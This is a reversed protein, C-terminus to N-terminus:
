GDNRRYLPKLLADKASRLAASLRLAVAGAAVLARWIRSERLDSVSRELSTVRKELDPSGCLRSVTESWLLLSPADMTRRPPSGSDPRALGALYESWAPFCCARSLRWVSQSARDQFRQLTEPNDLLFEIKAAFNEPRNVEGVLFGNEGDRIYEAVGGSDAAIAACGCALAELPLLGFGEHLSGDVLMDTRKLVEAIESSRLPLKRVECKGAWRAPLLVEDQVLVTLDFRDQRGELRHMLEILFPQGKDAGRLALTLRPKASGARGLTNFRRDDYGPPLVDIAGDYHSALMRKLWGSTAIVRDAFRFTDEVAGYIRGGYFYFEYGQVFYHCPVDLREARAKCPAATNWATAVIHRPKWREDRMFERGSAFCLPQLFLPEEWLMHEPGELSALQVSMGLRAAANCIDAVVHGGGFRQDLGPLVFMADAAVPAAQAPDVCELIRRRPGDPPVRRAFDDYERRWRAFFRHRGESQARAMERGDIGFSAGGKHYVYTDLAAVATFGKRMARFQYDTEEGYGLGYETDFAGTRDLCERAILLANGVVTCAEAHVGPLARGLLENLRYYSSGEPMELTLPPSYNSFPSVLGIGSDSHCHAILKPIADPTLLCDTNLLLM